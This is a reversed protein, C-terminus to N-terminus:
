ALRQMEEAVQRFGDRVSPYRPRWDSADRFRRNSVRQSRNVPESM